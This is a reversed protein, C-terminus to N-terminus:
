LVEAAYRAAELAADSRCATVSLALMIALQFVALKKIIKKM